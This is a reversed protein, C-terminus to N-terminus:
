RTFCYPTREAQATWAPDNWAKLPYRRSTHKAMAIVRRREDGAARASARTQPHGGAPETKVNVGKKDLWDNIARRIQESELVGDREKVLKLGDAQADDIWFPYKKRTM